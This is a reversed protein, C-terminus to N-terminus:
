SSHVASSSRCVEYACLQQMSLLDSITLNVGKVEQSLRELAPQLYVAAWANAQVNGFSSINNNANACNFYPALTNNQGPNEVTILQHYDQHYTQVGFFGAAFTL